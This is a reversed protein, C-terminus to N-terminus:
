QKADFNRAWEAFANPVVDRRRNVFNHMITCFSRWDESGVPTKTYLHFNALSNFILLAISSPVPIYGQTIDAKRPEPQWKTSPRVTKATSVRNNRLKGRVTGSNRHKAKGNNGIKIRKSM